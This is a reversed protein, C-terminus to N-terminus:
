VNYEISFSILGRLIDSYTQEGIAQSILWVLFKPVESTLAFKREKINTHVYEFVCM